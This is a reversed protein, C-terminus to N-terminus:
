LIYIGVYVILQSSPAYTGHGNQWMMNVPILPDYSGDGTATHMYCHLTISVLFITHPAHM